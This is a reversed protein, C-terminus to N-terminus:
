HCLLLHVNGNVALFARKKGDVVRLLAADEYSGGKVDDGNKQAVLTASTDSLLDLFGSKIQYITPVEDEDESVTIKIIGKKPAVEEVTMLALGYGSTGCSLIPSKKITPPQSGLLLESADLSQAQVLSSTFLIALSLVVKLLPM